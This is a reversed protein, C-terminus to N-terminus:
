PFKLLCKNHVINAQFAKLGIGMIFKSFHSAWLDVEVAKGTVLSVGNLMDGFWMTRMGCHIVRYRGFFAHALWRLAHTIYRYMCLSAVVVVHM